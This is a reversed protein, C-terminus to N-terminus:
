MANSNGNAGANVSVLLVSQTGPIMGSSKLVVVPAVPIAIMGGSNPAVVNGSNVASNWPQKGKVSQHPM